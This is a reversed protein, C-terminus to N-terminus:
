KCEKPFKSVIARALLPPVANGIQWYKSQLSGIIKFDDPFSQIRACEKWSLRRHRSEKPLIWKDKSIYIMPKGMPHLPVHRWNALICYSVEDWSRKRNRSLYYWPFDGNHFEGKPWRPLDWIADRLTRYKKFDPGHTPAPFEYQFGIGKKVGVIFIRKRDQPVGYDKANLLKWKVIYGTAKYADLQEKLFKGGYLVAMGNVNEAVFFKPKIAKISRLFQRYLYNREDFSKRNGGVSFGQCPYCGVVMEAKPFHKIEEINCCAFEVEPFNQQYSKAAPAYIDNAWIINHGALKVGLDFGGCGSFLSIVKLPM